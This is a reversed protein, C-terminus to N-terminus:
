LKFDMLAKTEKDSFPQCSIEQDNFVLIREGKKKFRSATNNGILFKSDAESAVSFIVKLDIFEKMWDALYKQDIRSTSYVVYVNKLNKIKSLAKELRKRDAYVMDCEEIHIFIKQNDEWEASEDLVDLAEQPNTIVPEILYESQWDSFDAMTMDLFIFGIEDFSYETSLQKYLNKHFISKGSASIGALLIFKIKEQEFDLEVRKGEQDCGLYIKKM